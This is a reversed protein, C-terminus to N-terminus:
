IGSIRFGYEQYSILERKEHNDQWAQEKHSIEILQRTRIEEFELLVRNMSELEQETFLEPKFETEAVFREGVGGHDYLEEEIRIYKRSELIGFLEHFHSPVPGFPIARYNCGSISQGTRRFNLFDGYFLLKNMRTKLPSTQQAFFLVYHAVKEFDPKVYGTYENAELHFNWIYEVVADLQDKQLLNLVKEYAKRYTNPSFISEKEKLFRLFQEPEDALRILKANALTPIEGHEYQRYSNIGFDLVEAMKAASLGYKDRISRIEDPFPIHHRSRYQNHVQREKLKDLEPTSFEEGTDQCVYAMDWILFEEGRFRVSSQDQVELKAEGGTFPSKMM